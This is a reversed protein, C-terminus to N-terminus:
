NKKMIKLRKQKPLMKMIYYYLKKILRPLRNKQISINGKKNDHIKDIETRINKDLKRIEDELKKTDVVDLELLEIQKEIDVDKKGFNAIVGKIKSDKSEKLILNDSIYNRNFFRYNSEKNENDKLFEQIIGKALSSKGRGNYGFIINKQKFEKDPGSYNKFSKENLNNVKNIM